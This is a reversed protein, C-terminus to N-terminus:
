PKQVIDEDGRFIQDQQSQAEARGRAGARFLACVLENSALRRRIDTHPHSIDLHQDDRRRWLHHRRDVAAFASHHKSRPQGFAGFFGFDAFAGCLKLQHGAVAGGPRERRSATRHQASQLFNRHTCSQSDTVRRSSRGVDVRRARHRVPDGGLHRITQVQRDSHQHQRDVHERVSDKHRRRRKYHHLPDNHVDPQTRLGHRHPPVDGVNPHLQDDFLRLRQAGDLGRQVRRDRQLRGRRRAKPTALLPARYSM